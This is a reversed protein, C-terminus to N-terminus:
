ELEELEVRLNTEAEHWCSWLCFLVKDANGGHFSLYKRASVAEPLDIVM